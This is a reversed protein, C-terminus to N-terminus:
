ERKVCNFINRMKHIACLEIAFDKFLELNLALQDYSLPHSHTSSQCNEKIFLKINNDCDDFRQIIDSSPKIAEVLKPGSNIKETYIEFSGYLHSFISWFLTSEENEKSDNLIFNFIKGGHFTSINRILSILSRNVDNGNTFFFLLYTLIIAPINKQSNFQLWTKSPALNNVDNLENKQLLSYTEDFKDFLIEKYLEDKELVKKAVLTLKIDNLGNTIIPNSSSGKFVDEDCFVRSVLTLQRSKCFCSFLNFSSIILISNDGPHLISDEFIDLLSPHKSKPSHELCKEILEEVIFQITHHTSQVQEPVSILQHVTHSLLFIINVRYSENVSYYEIVPRIFRSQFGNLFVIKVSDHTSYSIIDMIFTLYHKYEKFNENNILIEDFDEKYNSLIIENYCIQNFNSLLGTIIIGPFDSQLLWDELKSSFGTTLVLHLLTEKAVPFLLDGMFLFDKALEYIPFCNLPLKNKYLLYVVDPEHLAIDFWYDLLSTITLSYQSLKCVFSAVIEIKATPLKTYKLYNILLINIPKVIKLYYNYQDDEDDNLVCGNSSGDYRSITELLLCEFIGIHDPTANIPLNNLDLHSM